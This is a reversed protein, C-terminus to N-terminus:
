VNLGDIRVAEPTVRLLLQYAAVQAVTICVLRDRDDGSDVVTRQCKQEVCVILQEGTNWTDRDQAALRM